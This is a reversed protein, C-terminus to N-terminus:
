VRLTTLQEQVTKHLGDAQCLISQVGHRELYTSMSNWASMPLINKFRQM